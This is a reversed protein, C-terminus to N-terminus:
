LQYSKKLLSSKKTHEIKVFNNVTQLDILILLIHKKLFYIGSRNASMEKVLTHVLELELPTKQYNKICYVYTDVAKEYDGRYFNLLM